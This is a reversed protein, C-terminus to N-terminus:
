LLIILTYKNVFRNICFLTLRILIKLITHSSTREYKLTRNSNILYLKTTKFNTEQSCGEM